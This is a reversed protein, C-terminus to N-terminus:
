RGRIHLCSGHIFQIPRSYGAKIKNQQKNKFNESYDVHIIVEGECLEAIPKQYAADQVRKGIYHECINDTQQALMYYIERGSKGCIVKEYYKQGKKWHLLCNKKVIM